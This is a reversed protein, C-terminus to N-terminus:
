GLIEPISKQYGERVISNAVNRILADLDIFDDDPNEEKSYRDVFKYESKDGNKRENWLAVEPIEKLEDLLEKIEGYSLKPYDPVGAIIKDFKDLVVELNDPRHYPSQQVAWNAIEGLLSRKSFTFKKEM